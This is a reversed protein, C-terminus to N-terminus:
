PAIRLPIFAILYITTIKSQMGIVFLGTEQRDIIWFYMPSKFAGQSRRTESQHFISSSHELIEPSKRGAESQLQQVSCLSIRYITWKWTRCLPAHSSWNIYLKKSTVSSKKWGFTCRVKSQYYRWLSFLFCTFSKGISLPFRCDVM